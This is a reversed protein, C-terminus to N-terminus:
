IRPLHITIPVNLNLITMFDDIPEPVPKSAVKSGLPPLTSSLAESLNKTLIGKGNLPYTYYNDEHDWVIGLDKLTHYLGKNKKEHWTKSLFKTAESHSIHQKQSYKNTGSIDAYIVNTTYSNGTSRITATWFVFSGKETRKYLTDVATDKPIQAM